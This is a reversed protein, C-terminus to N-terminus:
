SKRPWQPWTRTLGRVASLRREALKDAAEFSPIGEEKAIAFVGLVTDFIEDAKRLARERTWGALESYVNIVGGANAVFDPAYLTGRKELAEGHTRAELLQNNAGGCVIEVALMPITTDNLIGGLACPAFIDAKTSFIADGDVAKAGTDDVVRKM